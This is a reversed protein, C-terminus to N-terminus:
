GSRDMNWLDNRNMEEKQTKGM